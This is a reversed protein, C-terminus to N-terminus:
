VLIVSICVAAVSLLGYTWASDSSTTEPDETTVDFTAEPDETSEEVIVTTSEDDSDTTAEDDDVTTSEDDTTETSPSEDETTSPMTTEMDEETLFMTSEMDMTSLMEDTTLFDFLDETVDTLMKRAAPNMALAEEMELLRTASCM